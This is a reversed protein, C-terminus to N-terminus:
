EKSLLSLFPISNKFLYLFAIAYFVSQVALKHLYENIRSYDSNMLQEHQPTIEETFFYMYLLM